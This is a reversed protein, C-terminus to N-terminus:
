FVSFFFFFHSPLVKLELSASIGAAQVLLDAASDEESPDEFEEENLMEEDYEEEEVNQAEDFDRKKEEPLVWLVSSFPNNGIVFLFKSVM